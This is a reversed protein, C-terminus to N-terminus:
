DHHPESRQRIETPPGDQLGNREPADRLLLQHFPRHREVRWGSPVTASLEAPTYSRRISILGDHRIFSGRLPAAAVAFLAYALANRRLDNHISLKDALLLSDALFTRLDPASLHHLVHNSVVFDFTQGEAVLDASSAQRFAVPQHLPEAGVGGAGVGDTAFRFAREDPDIGLVQLIVGDRAAWAALARSLDGGGCGLDLLTSPTVHSLLPRILQCYTTRWGAVARNVLRFQRYTAALRVPDCDPDDMLERADVARHGLDPM